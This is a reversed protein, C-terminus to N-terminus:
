ARSNADERKPCGAPRKEPDLPCRNIESASRQLFCTLASSGACVAWFLFFGVSYVATRSWEIPTGFLTLDAPDFLTFFLSQAVGAVLFSPWAIWALTRSKM